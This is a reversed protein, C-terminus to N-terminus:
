RRLAARGTIPGPVLAERTRRHRREAERVCAIESEAVYKDATAANTLVKTPPMVYIASASMLEEDTPIVRMSTIAKAPLACVGNRVALIM